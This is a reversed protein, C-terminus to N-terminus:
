AVLEALLDAQQAVSQEQEVVQVLQIHLRLREMLDVTTVKDLHLLEVQDLEAAQVALVAVLVVMAVQLIMREAMVAAM